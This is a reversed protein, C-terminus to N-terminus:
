CQNDGKKVRFPLLSNTERVYEDFGLRKGRNRKDAMPISVILFMLTNVLPGVCLFWLGPSSSLLMIYVGWWMLIEGLYNPHRSHKWLGDRIILNQGANRRRFRHMQVDAILQLTTAAICVMFGLVTLANLASEEIFVVGPLLCLYVVLTPFINIGFFSIIQFARPYKRKFGDYRWDQTSLNKFTYAWNCTLRVGWYWVALLILFIGMDMAGFYLTIGTYIVVPAVSWYPDYVSANQLAAETLYVFITACIDGALIRWIIHAEPLVRFITVGIWVAIAYIVTIVAFGAIRSQKM